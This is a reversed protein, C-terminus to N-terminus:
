VSLFQKPSKEGPAFATAKAGRFLALDTPINPNPKKMCFPAPLSINSAPPPLLTAKVPSNAAGNFYVASSLVTSNALSAAVPAYNGAQPM